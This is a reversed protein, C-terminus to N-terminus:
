IHGQDKPTDCFLCIEPSTNMRKFEAPYFHNSNKCISNTGDYHESMKKNITELSNIARNIITKEENIDVGAGLDTNILNHSPFINVFSRLSNYYKKVQRRKAGHIKYIPTHLTGIGKIVQTM